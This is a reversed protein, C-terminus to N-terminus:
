WDDSGSVDASEDRAVPRARPIPSGCEPCVGSENGRLDYGCRACCGPPQKRRSFAAGICVSIPITLVTFCCLIPPFLNDDDVRRLIAIALFTLVGAIIAIISRPLLSAGSRRARWIAVAAVVAFPLLLLAIEISM